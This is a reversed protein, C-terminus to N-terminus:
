ILALCLRYYLRVAPDELDDEIIRQIKDLRKMLSSRHIFLAEATKTISMENRLYLDLTKVYETGKERDYDALMLISRSILAHPSMESTCAHLLYDLAHDEFYNLTETGPQSAYHEVVYNAQLLYDDIQNVELFRNSLGAFYDMRTLFEGFSTLAQQDKGKLRIMGVIEKHFMAVYINQPMLANLTGYMYDRPLFRRGRRERLKFFIWNEGPELRFLKKEEETMAEHRMLKQLAAAGSSQTQNNDRLYKFFAKQFYGFFHDALPFDSERFPRVLNSMSVCGVFYGMPYLNNCYSQQGPLDIASIYPVTLSRELGCVQKIRETYFTAPTSPQDRIVFHIRGTSDTRHDMHFLTQLTQSSVSIPNGLVEAGLLFMQRIDFDTEKELEDRLQEDWADFRDYIEHIQNFVRLISQEAPIWLVQAGGTFWASPMRDGVCIIGTGAVPGCRPLDRAHLVYLKGHLLSMGQEYLVPRSFILKRTEIGYSKLTESDPLYTRIIELNLKM